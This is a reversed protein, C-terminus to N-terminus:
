GQTEWPVIGDESIFLQFCHMSAALVWCRSPWKEVASSFRIAVKVIQPRMFHCRLNFAKGCQLFNSPSSFFSRKELEEWREKMSRKRGEWLLSCFSSDTNGLHEYFVLVERRLAM